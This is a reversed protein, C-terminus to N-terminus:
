LLAHVKMAKIVTAFNAARDAGGDMPNGHCPPNYCGRNVIGSCANIFSTDELNMGADTWRKLADMYVWGDDDVYSQVENLRGAYDCFAAASPACLLPSVCVIFTLVARQWGARSRSRRFATNAPVPWFFFGAIWKIEPPSQPECIAEPNRCFDISPYLM